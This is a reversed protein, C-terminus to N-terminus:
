GEPSGPRSTLPWAWDSPQHFHRGFGVTTNEGLVSHLSWCSCVLTLASMYFHLTQSKWDTNNALDRRTTLGCLHRSLLWGRGQAHETGQASCSGEQADGSSGPLATVRSTGTYIPVCEQFHSSPGRGSEKGPCPRGPGWWRRRPCSPAAGHCTLARWAWLHLEAPQTQGSQVEWCGPTPLQSASDGPPAQAEKENGQTLM